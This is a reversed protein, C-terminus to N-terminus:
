TISSSMISPPFLKIFVVLFALAILMSILYMFLYWYRRHYVGALFTLEKWIAKHPGIYAILLTM